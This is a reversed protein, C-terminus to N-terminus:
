KFSINLNTSCIKFVCIIYIISLPSSFSGIISFATCTIGTLTLCLHVCISPHPNLVHLYKCSPWDIHLLLSHVSLVLLFACLFFFSFIIPLLEAHLCLCVCVTIITVNATHRHHHPPMASPGCRHGKSSHCALIVM